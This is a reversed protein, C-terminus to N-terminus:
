MASVYSVDDEAFGSASLAPGLFTLRQFEVGAAPTCVDPLWNVLQTM